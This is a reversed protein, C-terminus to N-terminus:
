WTRAEDSLRRRIAAAEVETFAPIVRSGGEFNPRMVGATSHGHHPLMLHGLEHTMVLGLLTMIDRDPLSVLAMVREYYVYARRAIPLAQGVVDDSIVDSSAKQREGKPSLLV